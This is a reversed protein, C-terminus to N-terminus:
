SDSELTTVSSTRGPVNTLFLEENRDAAVYGDVYRPPYRLDGSDYEVWNQEQIVRSKDRSKPKKPKPMAKLSRKRTHPTRRLGRLPPAGAERAPTVGSGVGKLFAHRGARCALNFNVSIFRVMGGGRRSLLMGKILCASGALRRTSGPRVGKSIGEPPPPPGPRSIPLLALIRAPTPNGLIEM